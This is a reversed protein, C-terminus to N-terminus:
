ILLVIALPKLGAFKSKIFVFIQWLIEGKDFM